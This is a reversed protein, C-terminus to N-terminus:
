SSNSQGWRDLSSFIADVSLGLGPFAPHQFTGGEGLTIENERTTVRITRKKPDVNLVVTAGHQLYLETKRRINPMWQRPSRIEIVLEPAFPPKERQEPSLSELRENSVFALDPVLSTEDDLYVRLEPGSVGRDQVWASLLSGIRGHLIFHTLQPSVKPHVRGDYIEKYPKTDLWVDSYRLM